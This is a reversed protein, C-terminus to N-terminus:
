KKEGVMEKLIKYLEVIGTGNVNVRTFDDEGYYDEFLTIWPINGITYSCIHLDANDQALRVIKTDKFVMMEDLEQKISM